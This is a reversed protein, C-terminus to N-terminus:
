YTRNRVNHLGRIPWEWGGSETAGGGGGGRAVQAYGPMQIQNSPLEKCQPDQCSILGAEDPMLLSNIVSQDATVLKFIKVDM